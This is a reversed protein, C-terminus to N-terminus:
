ERTIYLPSREQFTKALGIISNMSHKKDAGSLCFGASVIRLDARIHSKVIQDGVKWEVAYSQGNLKHHGIYTGGAQTISRKLVHGFSHQLADGIRNRQDISIVLSGENLIGEVAQYSERQLNGLMFAFRIEPTVGSLQSLTGRGQYAEKVGRILERQHRQNTGYYYFRGDEWLVVEIVDFPQGSMFHVTISEQYGRKKFNDFNVPVGEGGLGYVMLKTEHELARRIELPSAKKVITAENALRVKYWGDEAKLEIKRGKIKGWNDILPVIAETAEVFRNLNISM